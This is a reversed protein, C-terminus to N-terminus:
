LSFIYQFIFSGCFKINTFMLDSLAAWDISQIANRKRKETCVATHTYHAKLLMSTKICFYLADHNWMNGLGCVRFSAVMVKSLEIHSMTSVFVGDYYTCSQGIFKLSMHYNLMSDLRPCTKYQFSTIFRFATSPMVRKAFLM